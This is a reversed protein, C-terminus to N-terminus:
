KKDQLATIAGTRNREVQVIVSDQDERIGTMRGSGDRLIQISRGSGRSLNLNLDLRHGIAGPEMFPETRELERARAMIQALKELVRNRQEFFFKKLRGEKQHIAGAISRAYATDASCLHAPVASQPNLIASKLLALGKAASVDAAPPIPPLAAPKPEPLGYEQMSFPLFSADGHPLDDPLGLDFVQNLTNVPIGIGFAPVATAYRARRAGQMVPLSEGDFWGWLDAGFVKVVPDMSAEIRECLPLIRNEVFNLRAADSVSRNADESFGLIEQPVGYVALIEQRNFARNALFQMDAVSITPPDIKLGGELILPKDARGAMRKRNRLASEIQTRQEDGLKQDTGVVMGQDANNSMMGKIFQASHYDTQAALAAVFLPNQGDYFNAIGPLRLYVVEEPLFARTPIMDDYRSTYIWGGFGGSAERRMQDPNLFWLQAPVQQGFRWGWNVVENSKTLGVVFCRGRLMLWSILLEWFEFRSIMPHPRNFLEVVPGTELIDEGMRTGTSFRFPVNAVSESLVRVAAYIWVSQEQASALSLSMGDDSLDDGRLWAITSASMGKERTFWSRITSIPNM